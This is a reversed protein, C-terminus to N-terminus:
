MVRRLTGGWFRGQPDCAGDNMRDRGACGRRGDPPATPRWTRSAAGGRGLLWGEDGEVSAIM